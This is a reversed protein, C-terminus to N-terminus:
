RGDTLLGSLREITAAPDATEVSLSGIAQSVQAHLEQQRSGAFQYPRAATLVNMLSRVLHPANVHGALHAHVMSFIFPDVM